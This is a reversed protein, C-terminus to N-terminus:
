SKERYSRPSPVSCWVPRYHRRVCHHCRVVRFLFLELFRDVANRREGSRYVEDSHCYPCRRLGFRRM